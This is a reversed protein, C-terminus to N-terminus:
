KVPASPVWDGLATAAESAVKAPDTGAADYCRLDGMLRLALEAERSAADRAKRYTGITQEIESLQRDRAQMAESLDKIAKEADIKGDTKAADLRLKDYTKAMAYEVHSKRETRLAEALGAVTADNMQQSKRLCEAATDHGRLVPEPAVFCGSLTLGCLAMISTLMLLFTTAVRGRQADKREQVQQALQVSWTAALAKLEDTAIVGREDRLIECFKALFLDLKHAARATPPDSEATGFDDPIIREVYKAAMVAYPLYQLYGQATKASAFARTLVYALYAFVAVITALLSPVLTTHDM